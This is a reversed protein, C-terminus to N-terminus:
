ESICCSIFCPYVNCPNPFVCMPPPVCVSSYSGGGFYLGYDRYYVCWTINYVFFEICMVM